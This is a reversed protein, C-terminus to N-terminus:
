VCSGWDWDSGCVELSPERHSSLRGFVEHLQCVAVVEADNAKRRPRRVLVDSEFNDLLYIQVVDASSM